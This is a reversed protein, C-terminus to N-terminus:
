SSNQPRIKGTAFAFAALFLVLAVIIVASEGKRFYAALCLLIQIVVSSAPPSKKVIGTYVILSVARYFIFAIIVKHQFDFVLSASLVLSMAALIIARAKAMGPTENRSLEALDQKLSSM